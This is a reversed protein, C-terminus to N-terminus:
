MPTPRGAQSKEWKPEIKYTQNKFDFLWWFEHFENINTFISTNHDQFYSIRLFTPQLIWQFRGGVIMRLLHDAVSNEVGNKDKIELDFEQLLLIWRILMPKADKKTLLYKLTAHDTYVIVKTGM